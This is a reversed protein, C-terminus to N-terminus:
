TSGVLSLQLLLLGASVINESSLQQQPCGCARSLRSPLYWSCWLVNGTGPTQKHGQRRSLIYAYCICSLLQSRQYVHLRCFLTCYLHSSARVSSSSKPVRRDTSHLGESMHQKTHKPVCFTQRLPSPRHLWATSCDSSGLLM